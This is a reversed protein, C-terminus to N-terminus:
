RKFPARLSSAGEVDPELLPISGEVTVEARSARVSVDLARLALDFCGTDGDLIWARVARTAAPLGRELASLDRVEGTGPLSAVDVELRAAREDLNSARREFEVRPIAGDIYIDLLRARQARVEDLQRRLSAVKAAMAKGGSVRRLEALVRRPHALANAIASRVSAELEAAPVSRSQPCAEKGLRAKRSCEYYRYRSGNSSRGNMASGCHACRVRGRLLFTGARDVRARREPDALIQQVREFTDLSVIAPTAEPVVIHESEDRPMVRRVKRGLKPDFVKVAETRRYVTRGTYTENVLIRRVTLPYWRGGAFAPVGEANLRNAIANCSRRGVFENFLCQVVKAQAENVVRKGSDRDYTYGYIGRGTAQPVRGSRAREGKGRSTREAIKERELEAAFGRLSAMMRGLASDEFPETVIELRVGADLVEDVLVALKLQDRALRDMAYAVVVDVARQRVLQRLERMGPRDLTAGSATDRAIRVVECGQLEAHAVCAREQTDLSTGEREQTETSVRIYVAARTM